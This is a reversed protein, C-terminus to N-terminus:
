HIHDSVDSICVMDQSFHWPGGVVAKPHSRKGCSQSWCSQARLTSSNKTFILPWPLAYLWIIKINGLTTEHSRLLVSLGLQSLVVSNCLLALNYSPMKTPDPTLIPSPLLGGGRMLQFDWGPTCIGSEQCYDRGRETGKVRIERELSFRATWLKLWSLAPLLIMLM